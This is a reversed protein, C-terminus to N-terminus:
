EADVDRVTVGGGLIDLCLTEAGFLRETVGRAHAREAVTRAFSAMLTGIAHSVDLRVTADPIADVLTHRVADGIAHVLSGFQRLGLDPEEELQTLVDENLIAADNRQEVASRAYGEKTTTTALKALAAARDALARRVLEATRRNPITLMVPFSTRLLTEDYPILPIQTMVSATRPTEAYGWAAEAHTQEATRPTDDDEDDAYIALDGTGPFLREMLDGAFADYPAICLFDIEEGATTVLHVARSNVFLRDGVAIDVEAYYTGSPLEPTTPDPTTARKTKKATM